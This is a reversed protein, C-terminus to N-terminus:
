SSERGFIYSEKDTEHPSFIVIMSPFPANYKYNNFKLRGKIFRIEGKLCYNHFWKTDTRAPLLCVVLAGKLSEQYAKLVWRTIDRGYPPNMFVRGPAWTQILGNEKETFYKDTKHNQNNSCPDLSFSFEKDLEDFLAHPTEWVASKSSFLTDINEM